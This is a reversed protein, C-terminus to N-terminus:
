RSRRWRHLTKSKGASKPVPPATPADHEALWRAAEDGADIGTAAERERM